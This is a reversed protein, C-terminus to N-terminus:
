QTAERHSRRNRTLLLYTRNSAVGLFFPIPWWALEPWPVADLLENM